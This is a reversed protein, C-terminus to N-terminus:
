GVVHSWSKGRHIRSVVSSAVGFASAIERQPLIGRVGYIIRADEETLKAHGHTVGRAQREKQRMDRHNDAITGLFLHKPNVCPPNDCKHLVSMGEPIKGYAYTWSLRHAKWHKGDIVFDGYGFEHQAGQWEWCDNPQREDVKAWFREAPALPSRLQCSKTAFRKPQGKIQGRRSDTYRYVGTDQGCGCECKEKSM